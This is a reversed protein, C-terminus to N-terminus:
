DNALAQLTQQATEAMPGTTATNLFAQSLLTRAQPLPIGRSTCYFLHSPDLQGVTAGHACKVDDTYIELEPKTNVVTGDGLSLNKNSLTADVGGCDEHIHIRGNFTVKAKDAGINHFIQRSTSHPATHEVTIQQDLHCGQPVFAASTVHAEAGSGACVIQIDQRRLHSGNSHNHLQYSADRQIEVRLYQWHQAQTFSNRSHTVHSNPGCQIWLAQTQDVMPQAFHERLDLQANSTMRILVPESQGLHHIHLPETVNKDVDLVHIRSQYCVYACAEPADYISPVFPAQNDEATYVTHTIGSPLRWQPTQAAAPLMKLVPSAKTYKWREAHTKSNLAATMQEVAQSTHALWAPPQPAKPWELTLYAM